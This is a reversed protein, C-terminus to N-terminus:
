QSPPSAPKAAAPPAAAKTKAPAKRAAVEANAVIQDLEAIAETARTKYSPDSALQEYNKRALALNGLSRYCDAAQWAADNGVSGPFRTHVAEFRPAASPCGSVMRLAQVEYLASNAAHPGGQSAIASFLREAESYRGDRYAAMAADYTADSDLNAQNAGELDKDDAAM